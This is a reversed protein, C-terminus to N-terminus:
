FQPMHSLTARDIIHKISTVHDILLMTMM